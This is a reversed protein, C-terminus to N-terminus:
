LTQAADRRIKKAERFFESFFRQMSFDISKDQAGDLFPM